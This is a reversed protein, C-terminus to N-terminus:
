EGFVARLVDPGIRGDHAAAAHEGIVRRLRAVAMGYSIARGGGAQKAVRYTKYAKNFPGLGGNERSAEVRDAIADVKATVRALMGDHDTLGVRYRAATQKIRDVAAAVDMNVLGGRERNVVAHVIRSAANRECWAAWPVDPSGDRFLAGAIRSGAWWGLARRIDTASAVVVPVPCSPLAIVFIAAVNFRNLLHVAESSAPLTLM